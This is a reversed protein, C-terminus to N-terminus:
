LLKLERARVVAQDRSHVDLKAYLSKLHTKVTSPAVVLAEAIQPGSRGAVLLRLVERERESLSEDLDGGVGIPERTERFARLLKGVYTPVIGRQLAHWLLGKMIPGEDVFRRVYGEPEALVLAHGLAALADEHRHLGELALARFAQIEIVRGSRGHAEAGPLLQDLEVLARAAQGHALRLRAATMRQVEVSYELDPPGGLELRSAWEAAREVQGIELYAQVMAAALRPAMWPWPIQVERAHREMRNLLDDAADREGHLLKIRALAAYADVRVWPWQQRGALRIGEVLHQEASELVNWEYEVWVGLGILFNATTLNEAAQQTVQDLGRQFWASAERLKGGMVHVLGLWLHPGLGVYSAGGGASLRRAEILPPTAAAPEGRLAHGMGLATLALLRWVGEDPGLRDLAEHALAITRGTDHQWSAQSASLACIKGSLHDLETNPGTQHIGRLAIEAERLTGEIAGIQRSEFFFLAGAQAILLRPRSQLLDTPLQLLWRRLTAMHGSMWLPDAIPEVLDAARAFDAAQIAHHIAEEVLGSREFWASARRHLERVQHPGRQQLRSRLVDAFLHHYRYWRREGDLAILFLNARELQELQRQASGADSGDDALAECLSACMRHLVSTRLLFEQIAASQRLFVEEVLYDAVFRHSGSYAQIFSAMDGRDRMALAALQLGAIWGETRAELAALMDQTLPLGLLQILFREAEERSFRLDDARVELLTGQARWRALPLPPDARTALFLHLRPPLHEIFFSLGQHIAATDIVHYDDLVLAVETGLTALENLVRTLMAESPAPQHSPVLTLSTDGLSPHVRGLALTVYSWFRAPDNDGADLSIWALAPASATAAWSSLLTTKGWGPPAAILTLPRHLGEALWALLRPRDVVSSAPPRVFLKSELLPDARWAGPDSHPRRPAKAGRGM